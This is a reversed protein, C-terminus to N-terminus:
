IDLKTLDNLDCSQNRLDNLEHLWGAKYISQLESLGGICRNGTYILPFQVNPCNSYKSLKILQSRLAPNHTVDIVHFDVNEARLLNVAALCFGCKEKTGM